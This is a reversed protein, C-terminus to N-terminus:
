RVFRIGVGIRHAFVNYEYLIDGYGVFYQVYLGYYKNIKYTYSARFYPTPRKKTINYPPQIIGLIGGVSMDALHNTYRTNAKIELSGLYKYIDRNEAYFRTPVFAEIDLGYHKSSFRAKLIFRDSGRSRDTLGGQAKDIEGNSIHRWGTTIEQLSFRAPKNPRYTLLFEPAFDNDRMPSSAKENFLQFYFTNTFALYFIWDKHFFKPVLPVRFSIQGKLEGRVYQPNRMPTLNYVYLFYSDRWNEIWLFSPSDKPPPIAYPTSDLSDLSHSKAEKPKLNESNQNQNSELREKHNSPNKGNDYQAFRLTENAKDYQPKSFASIDRNDNRPLILRGDNSTHLLKGDNRANSAVRPM